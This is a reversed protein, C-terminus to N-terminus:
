DLTGIAIPMSIGSVVLHLPGHGHIQYSLNFPGGRGAAVAVKGKSTPPLDWITTKYAPHALLEGAKLPPRALTM